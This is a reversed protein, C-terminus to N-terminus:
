EKMSVLAPGVLNSRRDHLSQNLELHLPQIGHVRRDAHRRDLRVPRVHSRGPRGSEHRQCLEAGVNRWTRRPNGPAFSITSGWPDAEFELRLTGTADTALHQDVVIPLLGTSPNGDYDRVILSAGATLDLGAIHGNPRILNATM